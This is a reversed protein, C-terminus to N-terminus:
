KDMCSEFLFKLDVLCISQQIVRVRTDVRENWNMLDMLNRETLRKTPNLFFLLILLHFYFIIFPFNKGTMTM